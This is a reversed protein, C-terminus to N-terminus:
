HLNNVAVRRAANIVAWMASTPPGLSVLNLQQEVQAGISLEPLEAKQVDGLQALGLAGPERQVVKVVESGMPVVIPDRPALRNGDLLAKEISLQVGGGERVVVIRLPLDTGGLVQWNDVEGRLIRRTNNIDTSRVPNNPHVAFAVRTRSVDFSLLNELPLGPKARRLLALEGELSTSIMALDARGEFLALLGLNSKNPIVALQYGAAAEIEAQYPVLLVSNFTTSGQLILSDASAGSGLTALLLGCGSAGLVLRWLASKM